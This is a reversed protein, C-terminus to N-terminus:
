WVIFVQKRVQKVLYEDYLFDSLVPSFFWHVITDCFAWMLWYSSHHSVMEDQGINGVHDVSLVLLVHLLM